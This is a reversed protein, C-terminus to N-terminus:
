KRASRKGILNELEDEDAVEDALISAVLQYTTHDKGFYKKALKNYYEVAKGEFELAKKVFAVADANDRPMQLKGFLSLADVKGVMDVPQGGLEIIRQAFRSAHGLEGQVQKGFYEAVEEGLFGEQVISGIWFFYVAAWESAVAKNLDDIVEKINLEAQVIERGKRGM